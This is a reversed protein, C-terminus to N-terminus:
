NGGRQIFFFIDKAREKEWDKIDKNNLIRTLYIIIPYVKTFEGGCIRNYVEAYCGEAPKPGLFNRIDHVTM